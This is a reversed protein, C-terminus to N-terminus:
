AIAPNVTITPLYTLTFEKSSNNITIENSAINSYTTTGEGTVLINNRIGAVYTWVGLHNGQNYFTGKEGSDARLTKLVANGQHVKFYVYPSGHVFTADMVATSGSKWQVTVSGDSHDKLYANMDSYASNAIAIGEFVEDFPVPGEYRPFNGYTNFGGPIGNIRAGRNSIRARFPDPTIYAAGGDRMEGVFGVSGWWKHTPVPRNLAEGTLQPSLPRPTGTPIRTSADCADIAPEVVGANYIWNGYDVACRYSAVNITDSISGAGYPIITYDTSSPPLNSGNQESPPTAGAAIGTFRVNDLLFVTSTADTAWIVLGTDVKSLDLGGAALSSMSVSVTEWGSAGKSGLSQDGSTCPYGCDLKM